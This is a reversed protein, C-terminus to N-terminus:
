KPTVVAAPAAKKNRDRLVQLQRARFDETASNLQERQENSYNPNTKGNLQAQNILQLLGSTDGGTARNFPDRNDGSNGFTGNSQASAITPILSLSLGLLLCVPSLFLKM